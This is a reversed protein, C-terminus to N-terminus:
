GPRRKHPTEILDICDVMHLWNAIWYRGCPLPKKRYMVRVPLFQFDDPAASELLIKLRDSVFPRVDNTIEVYPGDTEANTTTEPDWREARGPVYEGYVSDPPRPLVSLLRHLVKNRADIFWLHSGDEHYESFLSWFSRM